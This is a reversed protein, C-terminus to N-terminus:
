KLGAWKKRGAVMAAEELGTIGSGVKPLHCLLGALWQLPEIGSNSTACIRGLAHEIVSGSISNYTCVIPVLSRSRIEELLDSTPIGEAASIARLANPHVFILHIQRIREIVLGWSSGFESDGEPSDIVMVTKTGELEAFTMSASWAGMANESMLPTSSCNVLWHAPGLEKSWEIGGQDFSWEHGEGELIYRVEAGLKSANICTKSAGDIRNPGGLCVMGINGVSGDSDEMFYGENM